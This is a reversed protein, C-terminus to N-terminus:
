GELFEKSMDAFVASGVGLLGLQTICAASQRYVMELAPHAPKGQSELIAQNLETALGARAGQGAIEAVEGGVALPDKYAVVGFTRKLYARVEPRGDHKYDKELTQGYALATHLANKAASAAPSLSSSSSQSSSSTTSSRSIERRIPTPAIIPIPASVTPTITSNNYDTSSSLHPDSSTSFRAEPSPDDVDMAGSEDMGDAEEDGIKEEVQGAHEDVRVRPEKPESHVKKLADSAELILEIFKRCRLKFLMLGQERELVTPFYEKTQALATEIDGKLVANVIDVRTQLEVEESTQSNLSDESIDMGSYTPVSSSSSTRECQAQFAKATKAYGHHALYSMILKRMPLKLAEQEREANDETKSQGREVDEAIDGSGGEDRLLQWDIPTHQIKNWVTDRQSHVHDEIAFKFPAHGFNVRVSEHMHRLGVSPYLEQGNKGINDFVLGLFTGNKTFFAKNQSFDIGCGIVDGTDYTPGYPSGDKEKFGPFAWGDDAHYGWSHREWGPLRSLRVDSCSFGISVHGKSGKQLIEIEFYYIGCAPPIPYNSRAAAADRDGVMPPGCFTLDRGDSSVSLATNRDQESWRTPLRLIPNGLLAGPTVTPPLTSPPPSATNSDEESDTSGGRLYHYTPTMSIPATSTSTHGTYAVYSHQNLTSDTRHQHLPTLDTVLFDRLASHDLYAPRPFSQPPAHHSPPPINTITSAVRPSAAAPNPTPVTSIRNSSARRVRSPVSPSASIPFCASPDSPRGSNSPRIVRIPEFVPPSQAVGVTRSSTINSYSGSLSRVPSSAINTRSPTAREPIIVNHSPSRGVTM